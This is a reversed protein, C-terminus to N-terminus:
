VGISADRALPLSWLLRGFDSKRSGFSSAASENQAAKENTGIMKEGRCVRRQNDVTPPPQNAPPRVLPSVALIRHNAIDFPEDDRARQRSRHGSTPM